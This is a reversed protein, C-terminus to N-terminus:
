HFTYDGHKAKGDVFTAVQKGIVDHSKEHYPWVIPFLSQENM